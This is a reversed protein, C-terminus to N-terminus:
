CLESPSPSAPRAEVSSSNPGRPARPSRPPKAGHRRERIRADRDTHLVFAVVPRRPGLVLDAAPNVTNQATSTASSLGELSFVILLSLTISTMMAGLLYGLFLRKPRPLLLMITSAALLTPNLAATFSLPPRQGYPM